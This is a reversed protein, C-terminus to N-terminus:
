RVCGDIRRNLIGETGVSRELTNTAPATWGVPYSQCGSGRLIVIRASSSPERTKRRGEDRVPRTTPRIDEEVERSVVGVCSTHLAAVSVGSDGEGRGTRLPVFGTAIRARRGEIVFGVISLRLM